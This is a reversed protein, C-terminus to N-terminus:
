CAWVPGSTMQCSSTWWSVSWQAESALTLKQLEKFLFHITAQRPVFGSHQWHIHTLGDFIVIKSIGWVDCACVCVWVLSVDHGEPTCGEGPVSRSWSQAVDCGSGWFFFFELASLLLIFWLAPESKRTIHFLQFLAEKAIIGMIYLDFVSLHNYIAREEPWM